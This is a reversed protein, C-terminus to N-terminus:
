DAESMSLLGLLEILSTIINFFILSVNNKNNIRVVTSELGHTSQKDKLVFIKKQLIPDIDIINTVSTRESLNASPAAIPLDFLTILKKLM